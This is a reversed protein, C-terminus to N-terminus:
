RSCRGRSPREPARCPGGSPDRGRPDRSPQGGCTIPFSRPPAIRGSRDPEAFCIARVEESTLAIQKEPWRPRDEQRAPSETPNASARTQRLAAAISTRDRPARRPRRVGTRALRPSAVHERAEVLSCRGGCGASLPPRGIWGAVSDEGPTGRPTRSPGAIAGGPRSERGVERAASRDGLEAHRAAEVRGFPCRSFHWRGDRDLHKGAARLRRSELSRMRLDRTSRAELRGATPSPLGARAVSVRAPHRHSRARFRRVEAARFSLPGPNGGPRKSECRQRTSGSERILSARM